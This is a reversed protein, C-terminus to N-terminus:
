QQNNNEKNSTRFYTLWVAIPLGGILTTVFFTEKFLIYTLLSSVIEAGIIILFLKYLNKM